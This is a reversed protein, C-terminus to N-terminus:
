LMTLLILTIASIVLMLSSKNVSLSAGHNIVAQLEDSNIFKVGKAVMDEKAARITDQGIGVTADLVVYTSFNTYVAADLASWYVCYDLAIGTVFLTEIGNDTM